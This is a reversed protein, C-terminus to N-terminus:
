VYYNQLLLLTLKKRVGPMSTLTAQIYPVIIVVLVSVHGGGWWWQEFHVEEPSFGM